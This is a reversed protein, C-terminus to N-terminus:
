LIAEQQNGAEVKLLSRLYKLAKKYEEIRTNGLALYYL